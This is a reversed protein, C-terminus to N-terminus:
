VRTWGYLESDEMLGELHHSMLAKIRNYREMDLVMLYGRVFVTLTLDGYAAPKSDATYVGEHPWPIGKNILTTGTRDM